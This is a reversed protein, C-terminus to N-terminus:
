QGKSALAKAEEWLEDIAQIDMSKM